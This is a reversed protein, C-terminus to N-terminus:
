DADQSGEGSGGRARRDREQRARDAAVGAEYARKAEELKRKREEENDKGM